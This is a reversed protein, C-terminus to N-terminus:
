EPAVGYRSVLEELDEPFGDFLFDISAREIAEESASQSEEEIGLSDLVDRISIRHGQAALHGDIYLGAWDSLVYYEYKKSM